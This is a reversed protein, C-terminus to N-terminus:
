PRLAPRIAEDMVTVHGDAAVAVAHALVGFQPLRQVGRVLRLRSSRLSTGEDIQRIKVRRFQRIKARRQCASCHDRQSGTAVNTFNTGPARCGRLHAHGASSSV